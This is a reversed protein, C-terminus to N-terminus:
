TAACRCTRESVGVWLEGHGKGWSLAGAGGAGARQVEVSWQVGLAPTSHLVAQPLQLLLQLARHPGVRLQPDEVAARVRLRRQRVEELARHIDAEHEGARAASNVEMLTADATLEGEGKTKNVMVTSKNAM